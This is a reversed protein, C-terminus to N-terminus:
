KVRMQSLVTMFLMVLATLFFLVPLAVAFATKAPHTKHVKALGVVTVTVRWVFGILAGVYPIVGLISPAAGYAMVKFTAEIGADGAQFVRLFFHQALVTFFLTLALFVPGLFLVGLLMAGMEGAGALGDAQMPNLPIVGLTAWLVDFLINTQGILLYFGLPRNIAGDLKLESFFRGSSFLVGFLTQFFGKYFGLEGIREWPAGPPPALDAPAAAEQVDHDADTELRRIRAWVDDESTSEVPPPTELLPKKEVPEPMEVPKPTELPQPAAAERPWAAQGHTTAAPPPPTQDSVVPRLPFREGCRPCTVTVTGAPVKSDAVERSFGCAPCVIRM